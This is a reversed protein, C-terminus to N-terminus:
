RFVAATMPGSFIREPRAAIAPIFAAGVSSSQKPRALMRASPRNRLSVWRNRTFVGDSLLPLHSM